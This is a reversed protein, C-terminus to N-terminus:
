ETVWSQSGVEFMNDDWDPSQGENSDYNSESFIRINVTIMTTIPSCTPRRTPNVIQALTLTLAPIVTVM